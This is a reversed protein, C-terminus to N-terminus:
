KHALTLRIRGEGKKGKVVIKYGKETIKPKFLLLNDDGKEVGKAVVRDGPNFLFVDIDVDGSVKKVVIGYEVNEYLKFPKYGLNDGSKLSDKTTYIVKWGALAVVPTLAALFLAIVLGLWSISNITRM